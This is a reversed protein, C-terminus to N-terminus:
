DEDFYGVIRYIMYFFGFTERCESDEAETALSTGWHGALLPGRGFDGWAEERAGQM